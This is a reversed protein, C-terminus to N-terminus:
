FKLKPLYMPVRRAYDALVPGLSQSLRREEMWAGYLFYVAAFCAFVLSGLTMHPACFLFLTGGVHMPHRVLGYAGTSRFDRKPDPEDAIRGRLTDVLQRLGLMKTGNVTFGAWAVLALGAAQLFYLLLAGAGGVLWITQPLSPEKLWVVSFTWLSVVTYALPYLAWRTPGLAVEMANKFRHSALASHLLAWGTWLGLAYAADAWAEPPIDVPAPTM